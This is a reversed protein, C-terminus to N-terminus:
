EVCSYIESRGGAGEAWQQRQTKITHGTSDYCNFTLEPIGEGWHARLEDLAWDPCARADGTWKPMRKDRLWRAVLYKRYALYTNSEGKFDLGQAKNAASNSFPTLEGEPVINHKWQAMYAEHLKLHSKHRRGLCAKHNAMTFAHSALWSFNGSSERLWINCPHNVHTKKYLGRCIAPDDDTLVRIATSMMQASELIMKNLRVDDLWLASRSPNPDSVFINM